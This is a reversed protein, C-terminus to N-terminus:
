NLVAKRRRGARKSFVPTISSIPSSAGRGKGAQWNYGTQAFFGLTSTLTKTKKSHSTGKEGTSSGRYSGTGCKGGKSASMKSLWLAGEKGRHRYVTERELGGSSGEGRELM